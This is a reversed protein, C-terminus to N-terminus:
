LKLDLQSGWNNPCYLVHSQNFESPLSSNCIINPKYFAQFNAKVTEVMHTQIKAIFKNKEISIHKNQSPLNNLM